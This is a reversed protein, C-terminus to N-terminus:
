LNDLSGYKAILAEERTKSATWMGRFVFQEIGNITRLSYWEVKTAFPIDNEFAGQALCVDKWVLLNAHSSESFFQATIPGMTTAMLADNYVLWMEM